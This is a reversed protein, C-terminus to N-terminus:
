GHMTLFATGSARCSTSSPLLGARGDLIGLLVFYRMFWLAAARRPAPALMSGERGFGGVAGATAHSGPPSVGDSREGQEMAILDRM